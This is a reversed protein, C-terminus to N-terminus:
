LTSPYTNWSVKLTKLSYATGQKMDSKVRWKQGTVSTSESIVSINEDITILQEEQSSMGSIDSKVHWEQWTVRSWDFKAFWEKYTVRKM